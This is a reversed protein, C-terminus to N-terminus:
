FTICQKRRRWFLVSAFIWHGYNGGLGTKEVIVKRGGPGLKLVSPDGYRCVWGNKLFSLMRKAYVVDEMTERSQEMLLDKSKQVENKPIRRQFTDLVAYEVERKEDYANMNKKLLKELNRQLGNKCTYVGGSKAAGDAKDECSIGNRSNWGERKRASM